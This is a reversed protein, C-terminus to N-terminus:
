CHDGSDSCVETSQGRRRNRAHSDYVPRRVTSRMTMNEGTKERTPLVATMPFETVAIVVVM